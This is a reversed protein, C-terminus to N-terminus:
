AGAVSSRAAAAENMLWASALSLGLPLAALIAWGGLLVALLLGFLITSAALSIASVRSATPGTLAPPLGPVVEGSATTLRKHWIVALGLIALSPMTVFLGGVIAYAVLHGDALDPNVFYLIIVAVPELATALGLPFLWSPPAYGRASAAARGEPAAEPAAAAGRAAARGAPPEGPAAV